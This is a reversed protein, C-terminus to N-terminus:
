SYKGWTREAAWWLLGSGLLIVGALVLWAYIGATVVGSGLVGVPAIMALYYPGTCRRDRALRLGCPMEAVLPWGPLPHQSQQAPPQSSRGPNRGAGNEAINKGTGPFVIGQDLLKIERNQWRPFEDYGASNYSVKKAKGCPLPGLISFNGTFKGTLLSNAGSVPESGVADDDVCRRSM